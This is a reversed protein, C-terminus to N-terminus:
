RQSERKWGARDRERWWAEVAAMLEDRTGTNALVTDAHARLYDDSPQHAARADFDAANMGREVARRRRLEVPCTVTVVEDALPILKEVRDLLQVEVVVVRAGDSRADDLKTQLEHLIYPHEIAELRATGEATAFAREALLHRNLRGADDLLDAGFSECVEQVCPQGVGLVARSMDDLDIRVAGRRGLETAATSKGSAIGGTLFVTYMLGGRLSM